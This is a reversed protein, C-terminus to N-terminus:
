KLFGFERAIREVSEYDKHTVKVYGDVSYLRELLHKNPGENLALLSAQLRLVVERRLGKRVVVCHSPIRVSEEISIVEDREEPRLLSYSYQGVGAADVFRNLVSRIAQEDGGAFYIRKFFDTAESRVLGKDKFIKLPYLYGSSSIPDVFAITKGKLDEASRIGSDKRVFIRSVYSPKGKYVEGLIPYAGAMSHALVYQLPGMFGMDASANRLAEVIGAYDSVVYHKVEMGMSKELYAVVPKVDEVVQDPSQYAIFVIKLKETGAWSASVLWVSVLLVAVGVRNGCVTRMM